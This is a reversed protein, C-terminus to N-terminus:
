STTSTATTKRTSYSFVYFQPKLFLKGIARNVQQVQQMKNEYQIDVIRMM